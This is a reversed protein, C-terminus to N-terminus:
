RVKEISVAGAAMQLLIPFTYPLSLALSKLKQPDLILYDFYVIVM